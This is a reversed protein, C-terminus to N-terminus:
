SSEVRKSNDVGAGDEVAAVAVAVRVDTSEFGAFVVSAAFGVVVEGLSASPLPSPSSPMLAPPFAPIAIAPMVSPTKSIPM